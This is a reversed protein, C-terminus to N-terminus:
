RELRALARGIREQLPHDVPLSNGLSVLASRLRASEEPSRRERAREELFALRQEPPLESWGNRPDDDRLLQRTGGAQIALFPKGAGGDRLEVELLISAGRAPNFTLSGSGDLLPQQTAQIIRMTGAALADSELTLKGASTTVISILRRDADLPHDVMLTEVPMRSIDAEFAVAAAAREPSATGRALPSRRSAAPAPPPPPPSVASPAAPAAAAVSRAASVSADAVAEARMGTVSIAETLQPEPSFMPTEAADAGIAFSQQEERVPGASEDAQRSFAPPLPERRSARAIAVPAEAQPAAPISPEAREVADSSVLDRVKQQVSKGEAFPESALSAQKEVQSELFIRAGVFAFTFIMAISAATWWAAPRDYFRVLREEEQGSALAPLDLPIEKRISDLLGPPPSPVPMERLERTLQSKEKRNM